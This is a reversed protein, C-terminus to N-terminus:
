SNDTNGMKSPLVLLLILVFAVIIAAILTFKLKSILWIDYVPGIIRMIQVDSLLCSRM